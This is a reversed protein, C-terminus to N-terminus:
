KEKQPFEAPLDHKGTRLSYLDYAKHVAKLFREFPIPKLLYDIANLNFGELAHESYATTFIFNPRNELSNIFDIGSVNPM